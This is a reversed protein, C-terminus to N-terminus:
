PLYLEQGAYIWNEDPIQNIGKIEEMRTLDGYFKRCIGALTDGNQVIYLEMADTIIVGSDEPIPTLTSTIGDAVGGGETGDSGDGEQGPVYPEEEIPTFEGDLMSGSIMPQPLGTPTLTVNAGVELFTGIDDIAGAGTVVPSPSLTVGPATVGANPEKSEKLAFAGIALLAAAAVLGSGYKGGSREPKVEKKTEKKSENRVEEASRQPVNESPLVEEEEEKRGVKKSLETLIPEKYGADVSAPKGSVLYDQMEENREYYICYGPWETLEGKDYLYFTADKEVPDVKYLVRDRGGFWDVHTQRITDNVETLFEPGGLFWGVAEYQPFYRKIKEYVGAWADSTFKPVNDEMVDEAEIAGRIFVYRKGESKIFEGVLVATRCETYDSGALRRLYGEAYDEIYIEPNNGGRGMQKIHKPLKLLVNGGGTKEEEDKQIIKEVM